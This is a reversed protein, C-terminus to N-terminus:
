KCFVVRSNWRMWQSTSSPSLHQLCCLVIHLPHFLVSSKHNISLFNRPSLWIQLTVSIFQSLLLAPVPTTLDWWERIWLELFCRSSESPTWHWGRCTEWVSMWIVHSYQFKNSRCSDSEKWFDSLSLGTKLKTSSNNRSIGSPTVTSCQAVKGAGVLYSLM